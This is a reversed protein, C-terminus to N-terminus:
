QAGGIANSIAGSAKADSASSTVDGKRYAQIMVVRRGADPSGTERPGAIDAPDAIMAALNATVACGFNSQVTNSETATLDQWSKGCAPVDAQYRTFGVKLPAKPDGGPDYVDQQIAAAPVGAEILRGRIAQVDRYAAGGGTTTQPASIQIPQGGGDRWRVVLARLADIQAQSLGDAHVALLITDPQNEAKLQYLDAPTVAAKARDDEPHVCGALTLAALVAGTWATM